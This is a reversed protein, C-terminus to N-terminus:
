ARQRRRTFHISLLLALIGIVFGGVVDSFYHVGLYLRSFGIILALGASAAAVVIRWTEHTIRRMALFALYGWFAVSIAAHWSPFSYGIENVIRLAVPPRPRVTLAKLLIVAITTGVVSYALETAESLLGRRRLLFVVVAAMPLTVYWEGFTTVALMLTTLPEFRAAVLIHLVSNDLPQVLSFMTM